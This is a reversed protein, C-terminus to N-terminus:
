FGPFPHKKRRDQAVCGVFTSKKYDHIKLLCVNLRCDGSMRKAKNGCRFFRISIPPSKPIVCTTTKGCNLTLNTLVLLPGSGARLM